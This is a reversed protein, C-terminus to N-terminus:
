PLCERLWQLLPFLIAMLVGIVAIVTLPFSVSYHHVRGQKSKRRLWLSM